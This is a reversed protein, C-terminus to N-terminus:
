PALRVKSFHYHGEDVESLDDYVPEENPYMPWGTLHYLDLHQDPHTYEDGPNSKELNSVLDLKLTAGLNSPGDIHELNEVEGRIVYHADYAETIRNTYDGSSNVTMFFMVLADTNQEEMMSFFPEELTEFGEWAGDREDIGFLDNVNEMRNQHAITAAFERVDFEPDAEIKEQLLFYNDLTAGAMLWASLRDTFEQAVDQYSDVEALSIIADGPQTESYEHIPTNLVDPSELATPESEPGTPEADPAESPAESTTDTVARDNDPNPLNSNDQDMAKVALSTGIALALAAAGTGIAVPLWRKKAEKKELDTLQENTTTPVGPNLAERTHDPITYTAEPASNDDFYQPQADSSLPMVFEDSDHTNELDIGEWDSEARRQNDPMEPTNGFRTRQNHDLESM